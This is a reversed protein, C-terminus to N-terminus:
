GVEAAVLAVDLAVQGLGAVDLDLHDAVGVAVADVEAGAVARGLAAVLLQDLLRRSGADGVVIRVRWPRLRRSPRRAAAVVGVGAGDLEEVLVALEVVQLHVGPELDLM